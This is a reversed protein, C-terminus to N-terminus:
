NRSDKSASRNKSRKQVRKPVYQSEARRENPGNRTPSQRSKKNFNSFAGEQSASVNQMGSLRLGGADDNPQTGASMPLIMGEGDEYINTYNQKRRNKYYNPKVKTTKRDIQPLYGFNM